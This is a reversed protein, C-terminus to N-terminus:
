GFYFNQRIPLRRYKQTKLTLEKCAEFEKSLTPSEAKKLVFYFKGNIIM